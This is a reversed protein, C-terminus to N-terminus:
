TISSFSISSQFLEISTANSFPYYQGENDEDVSMTSCNMIVKMLLRKDILSINKANFIDARSSPVQVILATVCTAFRANTEYPISNVTTPSSCELSSNSSATSPSTPNCSSM